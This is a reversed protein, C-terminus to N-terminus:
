NIIYLVGLLRSLKGVVREALSGPEHDNSELVRVQQGVRLRGTRIVRAYLRSQGPHKKQSIRSYKGKIFSAAISKCPGTYSTIEVVVEDGLALRSGPKLESWNVGKLTINEGASGPVIPHGERQLEEILDQSFICLARDPGDHIKPHAQRDGVLGLPGAEAETVPSKPVGGDSCNLQFIVGMIV